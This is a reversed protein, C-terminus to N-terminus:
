PLAFQESVFAVVTKLAVLDAFRFAAQLSVLLLEVSKVITPLGVAGLFVSVLKLGHLQAV